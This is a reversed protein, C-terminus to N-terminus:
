EEDSDWDAADGAAEDVEWGNEKELMACVDRALTAAVEKEGVVRVWRNVGAHGHVGRVFDYKLSRLLKCLPYTYGDLM